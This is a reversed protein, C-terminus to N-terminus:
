GDSLSLDLSDPLTSACRALRLLSIRGCASLFGGPPSSGGVELNCIVPSDARAPADPPFISSRAAGTRCQSTDAASAAGSSALRARSIESQGISKGAWCAATSATTSALEAWQASQADLVRVPLSGRVCAQSPHTLWVTQTDTRDPRALGEAM